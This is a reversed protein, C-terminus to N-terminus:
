KLEAERGAIIMAPIPGITRAVTNALASMMPGIVVGTGKAQITNTITAICTAIHIQGIWIQLGLRQRRRELLQPGLVQETMLM